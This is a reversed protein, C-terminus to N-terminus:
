QHILVVGGQVMVGILVVLDPKGDGTLDGSAIAWPATYGWNNIYVPAGFSGTGTGFVLAVCGM